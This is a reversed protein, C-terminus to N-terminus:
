YGAPMKPLVPKPPVEPLKKLILKPYDVNLKDFRKLPSSNKKLNKLAINHNNSPESQGYLNVISPRIYTTQIEKQGVLSNCYFVLILIIYRKIKKLSHM